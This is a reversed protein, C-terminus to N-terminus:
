NELELNEPEPAGADFGLELKDIKPLHKGAIGELDGHFSLTNQIVQEIQKERKAWIRTMARKEAELDERMHAFADVIAEVRHRFENGTVYDYVLEMKENKGAKVANARDVQILLTRLALALSLASPIDTVWISSVNRFHHFGAPLTESVLVAADAHIERQDEKLKEIWKESWAKTRKTEWLIRGCVKGSQTKVVQIIDGGRVGKGVPEISDFVFERALLDEIETELAEGQLQQSGQESKRKLVEITRKMTEMQQAYEAERIKNKEEFERATQERVQDRMRSVELEAQKEREEIERTRKRLELEQRQMEEIRRNKENLEDDKAKMELALDQQIKSRLRASLQEEALASQKQFNEQQQRTQREFESQLSQLRAENAANIKQIETEFRLKEKQSIERSLAESLEIKSGCSTCTITSKESMVPELILDPMIADPM